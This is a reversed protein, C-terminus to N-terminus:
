FRFLVTITRFLADNALHSQMLLCKCALTTSTRYKIILIHWYQTSIAFKKDMKTLKPDVLAMIAINIADLVQIENQKRKVVTEM